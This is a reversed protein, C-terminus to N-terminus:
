FSLVILSLLFIATYYTLMVKLVSKPIKHHFEHVGIISDSIVFALAGIVVVIAELKGLTGWLLISSVLMLSIVVCYALIPIKFTGLGNESSELYLLFKIMYFVVMVISVATLFLVNVSPGIIFAQSLFVLSFLLQAVLFLSLGILIDKEMGIDGAFCFLFAGILFLVSFLDNHRMILVFLAAIIAPLGKIFISTTTVIKRVKENEVNLQDAKISKFIIYLLAFVWFIPTYVILYKWM